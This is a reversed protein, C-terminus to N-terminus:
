GAAQALARDLRRILGDVETQNIILPPAVLVHDGALGNICHRPYVILGERYAADTLVQAMNREPPFPKRTQRDEVLEVALLLGLGRVQGIVPHRDALEDLKERLYVGMRRANDVLNEEQIIHLVELGVACAMPNGAYTHGHMFGGADVVTQVIEERAVIGGLPYYGSAMGKSLIVVDAEVDWQQYGFMTGTRGFGTM